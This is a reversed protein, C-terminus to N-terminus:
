AELEVPDESITFTKPSSIIKLIKPNNFNSFEIFNGLNIGKLNM